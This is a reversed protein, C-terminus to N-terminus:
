RRLLAEFAADYAGILRQWDFRLAEDRLSTERVAEPHEAAWVLREVLGAPTEYLCIGRKSEPIFAPYNLRNPLLPLCDCAIAECVSGGFFDQIATSVVVDADWLFNAYDDFKKTYGVHIIHHKLREQAEEFEVPQQRYSKGLIIVEFGIGLEDLAYLAEFFQRPQKDYEWRHNWLIRLRGDRPTPPKYHAFRSLEMGLWLVETKERLSDL